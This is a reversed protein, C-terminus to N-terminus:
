WTRARRASEALLRQLLAVRWPKVQGRAIAEQVACGPETAHRCDRFRCKGALPRLEVFAHALADASLHALGFQKMGPSDVIWSQEGLVYLTTESTTHRGARLAASLEGVRAGGEPVLANIL